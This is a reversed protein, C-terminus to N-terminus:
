AGILVIAAIAAAVGILVTVNIGSSPPTNQTWKAFLVTDSTVTDSGFNWANLCDPDKYWGNFTYGSQTPTVPETVLGGNVVAQAPPASGHGQVDFTVSYGVDWIAYVTQKGAIKYRDGPHYSTGSGTHDTNYEKFM